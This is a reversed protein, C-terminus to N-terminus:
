RGVRRAREIGETWGVQRSLEVARSVLSAREDGSHGSAQLLLCEATHQRDGIRRFLKGATTLNRRATETERQQALLRGLALHCHAQGVLSNEGRSLHLAREATRLAAPRSGDAALLEARRLVLQWLGPPGETAADGDGKTVVLAGEALEELARRRQGRALLLDALELYIRIVLEPEDATLARPIARGLAHEAEDLRDRARHVLASELEHRAHLSTHARAEDACEYLVMEASLLHGALRLARALKIALGLYRPDAGDLRLRWRAWRHADKYHQLAATEYDHQLVAADGAQELLDLTQRGLEAQHAHHALLAPHAEAGLLELLKRHLERRPEDPILGHLVNVLGPHTLGVTGPADEHLWGRTVLETRAEDIEGGALRRLLDESVQQGCVVVRRLLDLAPASLTRLRAAVIEEISLGPEGGERLLRAALVIALPSGGGSIRSLTEDDVERGALERAALRRADAAGLPGPYVSVHVGGVALLSAESALVIKAESGQSSECMARLFMRSAGDYRDIDDLVYCAARGQLVRMASHILEPLPVEGEGQPSGFLELLGVVDEVVLGAKLVRMRLTDPRTGEPLELVRRLLDRVPHWPILAGSADWTAEFVALGRARALRAAAQLLATRGAGSEGIVELVADSGALFRRIQDTEEARGILESEPGAARGVGPLQGVRVLGAPRPAARQHSVRRACADSCRDLPTRIPRQCATCPVAPGGAREVAGFLAQRLEGVTRYRQAPDKALARRVVQDLAPPLSRDQAHELLSPPEEQLHMTLTEKVTSALFPVRGCLLEFLIVGCAYLDSQVSARDDGQIQEPAMYAPTGFVDGSLTLRTEDDDILKAIGFDLVKTFHEGPAVETVMINEPKLDRHVVRQRHAAEVAALLQSFIRLTTHLPLPGASGLLEMLTVGRILETIIYLLGGPTRGTDIISIIHPHNLRSATRAERLFRAEVEPNPRRAPKMLKVAVPSELALHHARYIWGMSGEQLFEELRYKQDLLMQALDRGDRDPVAAIAVDCRPCSVQSPLAGEHCTPCIKM